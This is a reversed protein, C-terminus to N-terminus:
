GFFACNGCHYMAEADGLEAAERSWKMALQYDLPLGRGIQYLRGLRRMSAAHGAAAATRYWNIGEEDSKAVGRGEEYLGAGFV